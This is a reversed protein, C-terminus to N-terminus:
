MKLKKIENTKEFFRNETLTNKIEDNSIRVGSKVGTYENYSNDYSYFLTCLEYPDLKLIAEFRQKTYAFTKNTVIVEKMTIYDTVLLAPHNAKTIYTIGTVFGIVPTDWENSISIIPKDIYTELNNFAIKERFIRDDHSKTNYGENYSNRKIQELQSHFITQFAKFLIAKM